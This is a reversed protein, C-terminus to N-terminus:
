TRGLYLRLGLAAVLGVLLAPMGFQTLLLVTVGAAAIVILWIFFLYQINM